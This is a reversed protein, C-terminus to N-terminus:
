RQQFFKLILGPGLQSHPQLVFWHTTPKLDNKLVIVVSIKRGLHEALVSNIFPHSLDTLIVHCAQLVFSTLFPLVHELGVFRHELM